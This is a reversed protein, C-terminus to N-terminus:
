SVLHPFMVVPSVQHTIQGDIRDRIGPFEQTGDSRDLREEYLIFEPIVVEMDESMTAYRYIAYARYESRILDEELPVSSLVAVHELAERMEEYLVLLRAFQQCGDADIVHVDRAIRTEVAHRCNGLLRSLYRHDLREEGLIM